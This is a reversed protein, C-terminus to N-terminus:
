ITDTFDESTLAASDAGRRKAYKDTQKTENTPFQATTRNDYKGELVKVWNQSNAFIWDFDARWGRNNDGRMFHSAECRDFVEQLTEYSFNMEEFRICIKMKRKDSLKLVKPFSPCRDHYLKVIFECDVEQKKKSKNTVPPEIPIEDSFLSTAFPQETLPQTPVIVQSNPKEVVETSVYNARGETRPSDSHDEYRSYDLVTVLTSRFLDNATMIKRDAILRKMCTKFTQESMNLISCVEKRTILVQGRGVLVGDDNYPEHDAKCVYYMILQVMEPVNFWKWEIINRYFKVCAPM